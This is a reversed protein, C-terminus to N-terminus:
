STALACCGDPTIFLLKTHSHSAVFLHSFHRRRYFSHIYKGTWDVLADVGEPLPEITNDIVRTRNADPKYNTYRASFEEPTLDAFKTIGHSATDAANRQDILKLNALFTGFRSNEEEMTAYQKNFEAKFSQLANPSM